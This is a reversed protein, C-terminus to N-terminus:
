GLGKPGSDESSKVIDLMDPLEPTQVAVQLSTIHQMRAVIRRIRDGAELAQALHPASRDGGLKDALLELHGMVATLPNNIEHAAANALRTASHLAEARHAAAEARKRLTIDAVIAMFVPEATRAFSLSIEVPFETGDKRRGTLDRGHGIPRVHPNLAYSARHQGHVERLREPVLIELSQGLLEQRAYGFMAEVRANVLVIQGRQNIIVVGDSASELLMRARADSERLADEALKRREAARRREAVLAAFTLALVSTTGMFTQLLLLSENPTRRAFPGLGQLTGGLAFASLVVTATATERPGFRYAAWVLMPICLFDLPYDQARLPLLGGFVAQSTTVLALLLVAADLRQPLSWRVRPHAAWLVLLPAIILAGAVDGLWWTWWVSGYDGRRLFDGLFLSAVGLTASVTSSLLGALVAFRFVDRAREFAHPGHAFRQVLYAGVVGELTNGTAIGISTALSGATTINVIFAGVFIAPWVRYGLLLFAALAIGTPPWVATASAHVVALVLGLKGAAIYFLCLAVQSWSMRPILSRIM